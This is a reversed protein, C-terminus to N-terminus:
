QLRNDEQHMIVEVSVLDFVYSLIGTFTFPQHASITFILYLTVIGIFSVNKLQVRETM